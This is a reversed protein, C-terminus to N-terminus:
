LRKAVVYFPADLMDHTRVIGTESRSETEGLPLHLIQAVPARVAMGRVRLPDRTRGVVARREALLLAHRAGIAVLPMVHFGIWRTPATRM